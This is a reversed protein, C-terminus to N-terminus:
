ANGFVGSRHPKRNRADMCAIVCSNDEQAGTPDFDPVMDNLDFAQM